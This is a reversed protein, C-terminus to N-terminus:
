QFKATDSSRKRSRAYWLAYEGPMHHLGARVTHLEWNDPDQDYLDPSILRWDTYPCAVPVAVGGLADILDEFGRMEIIAYHDIHIGLNYLIADFLMQKGGGPYSYLEGHLYATNIRNMTYGPLYIYLDRPISLMVAGGAHPQISLVILTDTRFYRSTRRDSGLLLINVTDGHFAFPQVPDPVATPLTSANGYTFPRPWSVPTHFPAPTITPPMLAVTPQPAPTSTSVSNDPTGGFSPSPTAKEPRSGDRVLGSYPVCSSLFVAAILPILIWERM